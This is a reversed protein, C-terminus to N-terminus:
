KPRISGTYQYNCEYAKKAPNYSGGWCTLLVYLREYQRHQTTIDVTNSPLQNGNYAIVHGGEVTCDPQDCIHQTFSSIDDTGFVTSRIMYDDTTEKNACFSVNLLVQQQYLLQHTTSTEAIESLYYIDDDMLPFMVDSYKELAWPNNVENQEMVPKPQFQVNVTFSVASVRGATTVIFLDKSSNWQSVSCYPLAKGSANNNCVAASQAKTPEDVVYFYVVGKIPDWSPNNNLLITVNVANGVFHGCTTATFVKRQEALVTTVSRTVYRTGIELTTTRYRAGCSGAIAYALLLITLAYFRGM